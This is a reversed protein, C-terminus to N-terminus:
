HTSSPAEPKMASRKWAEYSTDFDSKREVPTRKQEPLTCAIEHGGALLLTKASKVDRDGTYGCAPCAFVRDSLTIDEHVYGCICMKTSPFFRDIVMVKPNAMLKRKLTGLASNQVERGFLGKHWGKINEDQMVVLNRGTVIDHYVQNAKARRRNALREYERRIRHKTDHWGRSGKVQRALKKQLGKLREPERVSIDFKEGESTTITTKIGFDIGIDPKNGTDKKGESKPVYCTLMLYIGSPKKVLKANACEADAPIQDMGFVRIPRKIGAIHVTNKYKGKANGEPGFCIWHTDKYQNLEISDYSSRFKLKGNRKGTKKRKAALAKMDQKLSSYVAQIFKAPMTLERAVTNKDKDLSTISRTKTSFDRFKDSELGILYNCLWRCETFYLFLKDREANSLCKLDLKLEIVVPRMFAHRLRTEKGKEKITRNKARRAEDNM